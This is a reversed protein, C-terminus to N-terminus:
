GMGAGCRLLVANKEFPCLEPQIHGIGEMWLMGDKAIAEQHLKWCTNAWLVGLHLRSLIIYLANCYGRKASRSSLVYNPKYVVLQRSEFHM